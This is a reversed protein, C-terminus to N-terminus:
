RFDILFHMFTNEVTEITGVACNIDFLCPLPHSIVNIFPLLSSPFSPPLSPLSSLFFPPLSPPFSHTLWWFKFIIFIFDLNSCLMEKIRVFCSTYSTCHKWWNWLYTFDSTSSPVLPIFPLPFVVFLFLVSWFLYKCSNCQNKYNHKFGIQFHSENSKIYETICPMFGLTFLLTM